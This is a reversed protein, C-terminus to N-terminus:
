DIMKKNEMIAILMSFVILSIFYSFNLDLISHIVFMLFALKVASYKNNKLTLYILIIVSLCGVIGSELLIQLFSDHAEISTYKLTQFSKYLNKFAEGGRGVIPSTLWIKIGDKTYEVRDRITTSGHLIDTFRYVIDSPLIAYQMPKINGNLKLQMVNISGETCDFIVDLRKTDAKPTFIYTITNSDGNYNIVQDLSEIYENNEELISINCKSNPMNQKLDIEINNTEGQKIGYIQRLTVNTKQNNVIELPQYINLGIVIYVIAVIAVIVFVKTKNFKMRIIKENISKNLVIYKIIYYAIIIALVIYSLFVFYIKIPNILVLDLINNSALSAILYSLIVTSLVNFANNKQKLLYVFITIMYIILVARSGTLIIALSSVTFLTFYTIFSLTNLKGKEDKIKQIFLNIKDLILIGSIAILIAATNAYQITGSLRTLDRSLYGSNLNQLYPELIRSALGDIGIFAQTLGISLLTFYYLKKSDSNKIIFYLILISVYRFFEFISDSFDTYKNSLIPLVYSIALMTFFVSSMAIKSFNIKLDIKNDLYCKIAFKISYFTLYITAIVAISGVFYEIDGTYFGGKKLGQLFILFCIIIDVAFKFSKEIDIKVNNQKNSKVM